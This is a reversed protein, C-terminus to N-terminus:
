IFELGSSALGVLDIQQQVFETETVLALLSAQTFTGDNILGSYFSLNSQSIESNVINQWVARVFEENDPTESVLGSNIALQAVEILSLGSDFLNIGISTYQKNSITETGFAASLLLATKGASENLDLDFALNMDSFQIREINTLVDHGDTNILDIINISQDSDSVTIKYNDRKSNYQAYDLGAGGFLFDDGGHGILLDSGTNGDLINSVNNGILIDNGDGSAANEITVGEAIWINDITYSPRNDFFHVLVENGIRSSNGARLDITTDILGEYQISDKGASDWVTEHYIISDNYIYNTDGSHHSSNAGYIYQIAQIDLVMPTIPNFSFYSLEISPAASYSMLTYSTSDLYTPLRIDGDFPHTLGLAHGVEHLITLFSESGYEWEEEGALHYPNIWIDGAVESESPLYAWAITNPEANLAGSYAIRIDGVSSTSDAVEIFEINAVDSWAKLILPFKEIDSDSLPSFDNWPEGESSTSGYGTSFDPSWVSNLEPYSFSILNDGWRNTSLLANLDQLESLSISEVSSWSTPLPM